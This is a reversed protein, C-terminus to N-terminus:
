NWDLRIYGSAGGGGGGVASDCYYATYASVCSYIDACAVYPPYPVPVCTRVWDYRTCIVQSRTNYGTAGGGGGGGVGGYPQTGYRSIIDNQNSDNISLSTSASAQSGYGGGPSGGPGAASGVYGSLYSGGGPDGYGGGACNGNFGGQGGQGSVVTVTLNNFMPIPINQSGYYTIGGPSVPSTNQKNLFDSISIPGSSQINGRSNNTGYWRTNYYSGLSYGGGFNSNIDYLSAPGSPVTM